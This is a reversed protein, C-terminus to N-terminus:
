RECELCIEENSMPGTWLAIFWSVFAALEVEIRRRAAPNINMALRLSESIIHGSRATTFVRVHSFGSEQALRMLANPGFIHLHRPPELGRWNLGFLRHGLSRVNPTTLVLKGGPRLIRACEQLYTRPDPLHEILHSAVVADFAGDSFNCEELSGLRADLNRSKALEVSVPDFEVGTVNWGVSKLRALTAGNGFGVELLQGKPQAKLWFVRAAADDRLTPIAAILWRGLRSALSTPAAYGYRHALYGDVAQTFLRKGIGGAPEATHTHYSSYFSPLIAPLPAPNLWHLDCQPNVCRAM